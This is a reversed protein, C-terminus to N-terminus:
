FKVLHLPKNKAYNVVTEIISNTLNGYADFSQHGLHPTIIVNGKMTKKLDMIKNTVFYDFGIGRFKNHKILDDVDVLESPSTSILISGTKVLRLKDKSIFNKMTKPDYKLAIFIIDSDQFLKKLLVLKVGRVNKPTRNFGITKMGLGQCLKAISKGVNGLGVIGATQGAIQHRILYPIVGHSPWIDRVLKTHKYKKYVFSKDQVIRRALDLNSNLSMMMTIAVEAVDQTAYQALNALKIKYKKLINVPINDYATTNVVILEINECKKFLEESPTWIFQDLVVINKDKIRKIATLEDSTDTYFSVEKFNRKLFEKQKDSFM